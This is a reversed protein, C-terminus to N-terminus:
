VVVTLGFYAVTTAIKVPRSFRGSLWLFPLGIPGVAALLGVIAWRNKLLRGVPGDFALRRPEPVVFPYQHSAAAPTPVGCRGCFRDEPDSEAGCAACCTSAVILQNM